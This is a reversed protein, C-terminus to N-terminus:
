TALLKQPSPGAMSSTWLTLILIQSPQVTRLPLVVLCTTWGQARNFGATIKCGLHGSMAM